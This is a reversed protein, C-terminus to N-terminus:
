EVNKFGLREAYRLKAMNLERQMELMRKENNESNVHKRIHEFLVGMGALEASASQLFLGELHLQNQEELKAIARALERRSDNGDFLALILAALSWIVFLAGLQDYSPLLEYDLLSAAWAVTGIVGFAVVILIRKM